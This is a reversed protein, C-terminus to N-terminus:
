FNCRWLFFDIFFGVEYYLCVDIIKDGEVKFFIISFYFDIEILFVWDEIFLFNYFVGKLGLEVYIDEYKFEVLDDLDKVRVLRFM